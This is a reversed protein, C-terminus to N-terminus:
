GCPQCQSPQHHPYTELYADRLSRTSIRTCPRNEQNIPRTHDEARSARLPGEGISATKSTQARQKLIYTPGPFISYVGGSHCGEERARDGSGLTVSCLLCKTYWRRPFVLSFTCAMPGCLTYMTSAESGPLFLNEGTTTYINKKRTPKPLRSRTKLM